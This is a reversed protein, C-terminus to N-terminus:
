YQNKVPRTIVWGIHASGDLHNANIYNLVTNDCYSRNSCSRCFTNRRLFSPGRKTPTKSELVIKKPIKIVLTLCCSYCSVTYIM